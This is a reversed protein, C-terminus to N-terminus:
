SNIKDIFDVISERIECYCNFIEQDNNMSFNEDGNALLTNILDFLKDDLEIYELDTM